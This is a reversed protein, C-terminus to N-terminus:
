RLYSILMASFGGFFMICYGIVALETTHAYTVMAGGLGGFMFAFALPFIARFATRMEEKDGSVHKFLHRILVVGHFWTVIIIMGGTVLFLPFGYNWLEISYADFSPVPRWITNVPIGVLVGFAIIGRIWRQPHLHPLALAITFGVLYAMWLYMFSNALINFWGLIHPQKAFFFTPISYLGVCIGLFTFSIMLYKSPILGNKKYFVFQKHAITFCVAAAFLYGLSSISVFIDM